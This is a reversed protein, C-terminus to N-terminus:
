APDAELAQRDPDLLFDTFGKFIKVKLPRIRQQNSVVHVYEKSFSFFAYFAKSFV